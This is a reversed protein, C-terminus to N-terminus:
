KTPRDMLGAARAFDVLAAHVALYAREGGPSVPAFRLGNLKMHQVLDGATRGKAVLAGSLYDKADPDQLLKLADDLQNLFSRADLYQKPTWTAQDGLSRARSTFARDLDAATQLIADVTQGEVDGRKAQEVAEELLRNLREREPRFDPRQLLSPWRLRGTRLVGLNGGSRGSTVNIRALHEPNIPVNGAGGEPAYVKQLELLLDNLSKASWIETIPPDTLARRTEIRQTREREDQLTPLNAREWLWQEQKKRRNDLRASVISERILIAQQQDKAFQGQARIVDAAGHLGYPDSVYPWSWYYYGPSVSGSQRGQAPVAALLLLGVTMMRAVRSM